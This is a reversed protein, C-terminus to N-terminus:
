EELETYWHEPILASDGRWKVDRVANQFWEEDIDAHDTIIVQLNPSLMEVIKFIWQFMSNVAQRDEDKKIEVLSGTVAIDAPFYVQTPQDLFIFRGVPRNQEIFWKAFALYSVLHYGVWNEGSGMNNLPILGHPTESVVTLKNHDVKIRYESHELKLERAWETMDEAICSLQADLREKLAGPDLKEELEIIQPELLKIRQEIPRTDEQWSVSDIYLSIRGASHAKRIDENVERSLEINEGRISEIANRTFKIRTALNKQEDKLTSVYSTIRPRSREVGDLKKDLSQLSDLIIREFRSPGEHIGDCVPCVGDAMTYKRFLGISQLRLEQTKVADEFNDETGIYENAERLKARIIQKKENLTRYESELKTFPDDIQDEESDTHPTWSSLERFIRLLEEEAPILNSGKYLGVEAAEALLVYGKELGEGKLSEIENLKKYLRTRDQKLSRLKQLDSLRDDEAAGLFYPMTDKIAQPIHPEAQRHFLFKKAAIEDQGQFLYYKSHKFSINIEARTQDLPVETIQEPVGLKRTLFAMVSDINTSAELEDKNPITIEKEVLLHSSSNSNYGPLPAARAIFVQTDPFQLLVSYWDVTKKIYGEAVTCESSGLCYEVIDLLSSKGKKSAGTIINVEGINFEIDRRESNKGYLSIASIQMTM